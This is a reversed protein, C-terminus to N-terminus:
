ENKNEIAHKIIDLNCSNTKKCWEECDKANQEDEYHFGCADCVFTNIKRVMTVHNNYMKLFFPPTGDEVLNTFKPVGM